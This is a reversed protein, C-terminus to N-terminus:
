PESYQILYYNKNYDGLYLVITNKKVKIKQDSRLKNHLLDNKKLFTQTTSKLNDDLFVWHSKFVLWENNQMEYAYWQNVRLKEWSVQTYYTPDRIQRLSPHYYTSSM